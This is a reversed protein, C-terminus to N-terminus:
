ASANGQSHCQNICGFKVTVLFENTFHNGTLALAYEQGGFDQGFIHGSVADDCLSALRAEAAKLGIM